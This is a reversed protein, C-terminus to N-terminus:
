TEINFKITFKTGNSGEMDISGDLQNEVLKRILELGLTNPNKWDLEDPMGVGDDMVTLELENKLKKTSVNIEGQGDEPFAYKLSNSILENIILGLPYAQNLSISSNDVDSNLKVKRNENSYTQFISNTIKSLYTKLDIRSLKDSGHLTEHVASMAYVRNQSAKLIDKIQDDEINISQLNLLSSIVQMNNKVRHHIEQLLTEKEKLSSKIQEEVQKQETIDSLFNLTAPKDEWSVLVPKIQIWRTEQNKTIMRFDDTNELKEGSLRRQHRESLMNRDDPHVITIFSTNLLDEESYGIKHCMKPNVYKLLNNQVIIIGENANETITRYKEESEQLALEAKKKETVDRIVSRFGMPEGSDNRRLSVSSQLYLQTGDDRTLKWDLLKGSEGTNYINNYFKFIETRSEPDNFEKFNKDNLQDRSRGQIRCFADNFFVHNGRLDHEVYGDEMSEIINRYKEESIKLALETKKQETVDSAFALIAPRNEWEITVPKLNIWKIENDKTNLRFDYNDIVIEGELRRDKREALIRKDDPHVYDLFQMEKMEESTFGTLKEMKPNVFTFTDDQIISIGENANEIVLRYTEESQKHTQKSQKQATIELIIGRIGVPKGNNCTNAAIERVWIIRGSKHIIRYERDVSFNPVTIMEEADKSGFANKFDDAHVIKNWSPNGSLFEEPTYGTIEEVKGHFFVPIFIGKNQFLEFNGQYAIGQFNEIFSRYREESDKLATQTMSNVISGGIQNAISELGFRSSKPIEEHQHSAVNLCGVVGGEHKLPIIGTAKLMEKMRTKDLPIGLNYHKRYIPEGAMIFNYQPSDVQFNSVSKIFDLSLGEHVRLNFARSKEDIIYIGGCDMKSADLASKLCQEISEDFNGITSLRIGLDRQIRILEEAKRREDDVMSVHLAMDTTIRLDRESVPKLIYGFPMTLKAKELRKEDLYATMFIIPIQFQTRIIEAAAIGDMEGKIRIDMLIIDPKDKDAKEIAKEGTDVISTVEHGLNQLSSEIKMAIIAEDEVILIKAKKM